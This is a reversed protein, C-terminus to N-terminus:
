IFVIEFSKMEFSFPTPMVLVNVFNSLPPHVYFLRRCCFFVSSAATSFKLTMPKDKYVCFHSIFNLMIVVGAAYPYM